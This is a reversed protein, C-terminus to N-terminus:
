PSPTSTCSLCACCSDIDSYMFSFITGVIKDGWNKKRAHRKPNQAFTRIIKVTVSMAFILNYIKM